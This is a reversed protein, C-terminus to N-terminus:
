IILLEHKKQQEVTIISDDHKTKHAVNPTQLLFLPM